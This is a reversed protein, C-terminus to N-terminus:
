RTLGGLWEAYAKLLDSALSLDAKRPDPGFAGWLAHGPNHRHAGFPDGNPDISPHDVLNPLLEINVLDPDIASLLTSEFTAAHDPEIPSNEYDAVSLALLEISNDSNENWATTLEALFARQEPAFHGSLVLCKAVGLEDLRRLTTVLIDEISQPSQLMLTWPYHSHEGGTGHYLTPLVIGGVQEAAAVCVGHATIGDLGLPLHPGHFEIAGIPFFVVSKEEIRSQVELFSLREARVEPARKM